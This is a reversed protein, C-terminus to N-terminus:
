IFVCYVSITHHTYMLLINNTYTPLTNVTPPLPICRPILWTGGRCLPLFFFAFTYSVSSPHPSCGLSFAPQQATTRDCSFGLSGRSLRRAQVKFWHWRVLILMHQFLTADCTKWDNKQVVSAHGYSTNLCQPLTNLQYALWPEFYLGFLCITPMEQKQIFDM